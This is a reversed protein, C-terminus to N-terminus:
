SRSLRQYFRFLENGSSFSTLKITEENRPTLAYASMLDIECKYTKNARALHPALPEIPCSENSQETNFNLLGADLGCKKSDGKPIFVPPNLYTTGYVPKEQLSSGIQKM